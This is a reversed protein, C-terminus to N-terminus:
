FIISLVFGLAIGLVIIGLISAFVATGFTENDM